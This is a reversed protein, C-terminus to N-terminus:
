WYPNFAIHSLCVSIVVTLNKSMDMLTLSLSGKTKQKKQSMIKEWCFHSQILAIVWSQEDIVDNHYLDQDLIDWLCNHCFYVFDLKGEKYFFNTNNVPCRWLNMPM